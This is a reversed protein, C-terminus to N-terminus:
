MWLYNNVINRHMYLTYLILIMHFNTSPKLERNLRSVDPNARIINSIESLVSYVM